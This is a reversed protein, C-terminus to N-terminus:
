PRPTITVRGNGAALGATTAANTGTIFSSGGGGGNAGSLSDAGGGGGGYYGGGGGGGARSGDSNAGTGGAGLVGAAGPHTPSAGGAGGASQMAGGGGFPSCFSFSSGATAGALGGAAGGSGCFFGPSSGGGGGAAVVVRDTLATANLRLDSAGGGGGGISTGGGIGGTTGGSGGGNFGGATAVGAGGVYVFLTDGPTVTLTTQVRGGFGGATTGFSPDSVSAGQAGFADVDVRTVGAPVVYVQVTGTFGFSAFNGTQAVTFSGLTTLGAGCVIRTLQDVSTSVDQWVGGSLQLLRVASTNAAGSFNVCATATTFGANTAVDYFTGGGVATYGVPLPPGSSPKVLTTKGASSVSAFTIVVPVSGNSLPPAMAINSGAPTNPSLTFNAIAPPSGSVV